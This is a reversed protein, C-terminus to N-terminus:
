LSGLDHCRGALDQLNHGTAIAWTSVVKHSVAPVVDLLEYGTTLVLHRATITPGQRMVVAIGPRNHEIVMAEAPAYFRAKKNLAALLLGASLKRSLALDDHSLIAGGRDIGFEDRM